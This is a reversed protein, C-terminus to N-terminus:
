HPRMLICFSSFLLELNHFTKPESVLSAFNLDEFLYSIIFYKNVCHLYRRYQFIVKRKVIAFYKSIDGLPSITCYWVSSNQKDCYSIMFHWYYKTIPCFSIFTLSKVSFIGHFITAKMLKQLIEYNRMLNQLIGFYKLYINNFDRPFITM